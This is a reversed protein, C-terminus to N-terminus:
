QVRWARKAILNNCLQKDSSQLRLFIVAKRANYLGSVATHTFAHHSIYMDTVDGQAVYQLARCFDCDNFLKKEVRGNQNGAGPFHKVYDYYM